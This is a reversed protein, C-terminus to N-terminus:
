ETKGDGHAHTFYSGRGGEETKMSKERNQNIIKTGKRMATLGM